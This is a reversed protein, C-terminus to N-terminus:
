MYKKIFLDYREHLEPSIHESSTMITNALASHCACGSATRDKPLSAIVRAIMHQAISTNKHLNALVMEVSVAENQEHWSDYDTVCAIISYCMEAERALKAEPLATMGICEMGLARYFRSEARTSFLPGEMCVYTGGRHIATTGLSEGANALHDSLIPCMPDAFAAHVVVSEEFFSNVRSKTRDFIQDPLMIDLPAISEQLSGVASVSILYEVGLSKLAWINARAPIHTPSIRHGRGHRPLFAIHEGGFTGLVIDDSPMGFPTPIQVESLDEMGSIAYLGSGGIIGIRATNM